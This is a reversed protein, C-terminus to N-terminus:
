QVTRLTSIYCNIIARQPIETCQQNYMCYMYSRVHTKM